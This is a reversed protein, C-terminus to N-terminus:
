QYHEDHQRDQSDDDQDVEAQHVITLALLVVGGDSQVDALVEKAGVIGDDDFHLRQAPIDSPNNMSADPCVDDGLLTWHCLEPLTDLSNRTFKPM